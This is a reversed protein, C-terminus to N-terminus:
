TKLYDVVSSLNMRVKQRYFVEKIGIYKELFQHVVLARDVAEILNVKPICRPEIGRYFYMDRTCKLKGHGHEESFNKLIMGDETALFKEDGSFLMPGDNELGPHPVCRSKLSLGIGKEYGLGNGFDIWGNLYPREGGAIRPIDIMIELVPKEDVSKELDKLKFCPLFLHYDDARGSPFEETTSPKGFFRYEYVPDSGLQQTINELLQNILRFDQPHYVESLFDQLKKGRIFQPLIGFSTDQFYAREWLLRHNELQRLENIWLLHPRLVDYSRRQDKRSTGITAVYRM